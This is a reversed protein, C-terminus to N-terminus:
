WNKHEVCFGEFRYLAYINNLYVIFQIAKEFGRFKIGNLSFSQEQWKLMRYMKCCQLFEASFYKM